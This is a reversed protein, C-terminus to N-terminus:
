NEEKDDVFTEKAAFTKCISNYDGFVTVRDGDGIVTEAKPHQMHQGTKELLMVLIGKEEKLGSKSLPVGKLEEPVELLTVRAIANRGIHDLVVISNGAEINLVKGAIKELLKDTRMRMAPVRMLVIMVALVALPILMGLLMSTQQSNQKLSIFVNILSTVITINFVYGFLMTIRALRRRSKTSVVMESERTTFGCGTLLSTVQFRAKGYPLGTFRFLITFLESIVWYLLIVLAFLSFAVFVNM